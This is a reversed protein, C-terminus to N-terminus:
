KKVLLLLLLRWKVHSVLLVQLCVSSHHLPSIHWLPLCPSFRRLHPCRDIVSSQITHSSNWQLKRPTRQLFISYRGEFISFCLLITWRGALDWKCFLIAVSKLLSKLIKLDSKIEFFQNLNSMELDSKFLDEFWVRNLEFRWTLNSDEIRIQNLDSRIFDWTCRSRSPVEVDEAWIQNLDCINLDSKILDEVWIQNM